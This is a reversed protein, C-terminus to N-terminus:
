RGILKELVIASQTQKVLDGNAMDKDDSGPEIGVYQEGLLGATLIKASSDIPFQVGENVKMIVLGQYTSKDLTISTVQGVSVGASRVPARRKLEGIDDFRARITYTKGASFSALNAAKLALFALAIIGLLAFVGVRLGTGKKAM